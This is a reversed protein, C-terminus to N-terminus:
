AVVGRKELEHVIQAFVEDPTKMGDVEILKGQQKFMEVVPITENKYIELRANVAEKTDDERQILNGQCKALEEKSLTYINYTKGDVDCIRRGTIRRLSEERPINIHLVWDPNPNYSRINDMSRAWGDLIFGRNCDKLSVREKILSIVIDTDVLVGKNLQNQAREYWPSIEPIDRLLQGVSIAPLNYKKSLLEAQTGKGCAQPGMMLFIM